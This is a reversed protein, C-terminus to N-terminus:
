SEDPGAPSDRIGQWLVLYKDRVYPNRQDAFGASLGVTRILEMVDVLDKM